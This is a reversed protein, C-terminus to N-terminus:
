LQAELDTAPFRSTHFLHIRTRTCCRVKVPTYSLCCQISQTYTYNVLSHTVVQYYIWDDSMSGTKNTAYVGCYEKWTTPAEWCLSHVDCCIVSTDEKRWCIEHYCWISGGSLLENSAAMETCIIVDHGQIQTPDGCIGIQSHPLWLWNSRWAWDM